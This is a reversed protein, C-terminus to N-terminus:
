LWIDIKMLFFWFRGFDVYFLYIVNYYFFFEFMYMFVNNREIIILIVKSKLFISFNKNCNLFSEILFNVKYILKYETSFGSM